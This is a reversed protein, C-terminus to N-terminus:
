SQSASNLNEVLPVMRKQQKGKASKRDPTSVLVPRKVPGHFISEEESSSDGGDSDSEPWPKGELKAKTKPDFLYKYQKTAEKHTKYVESFYNDLLTLEDQTYKFKFEGAN